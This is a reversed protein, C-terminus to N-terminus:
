CHGATTFGHPFCLLCNGECAEQQLKMGYMSPDYLEVCGIAAGCYALQCEGIWRTGISVIAPRDGKGLPDQVELVAPAIRISCANGEESGVPIVLTGHENILMVELSRPSTLSNRRHIGVKVGTGHSTPAVGGSCRGGDDGCGACCLLPCPRRASRV